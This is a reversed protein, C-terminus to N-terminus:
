KIPTPIEHLNRFDTVEWAQIDEPYCKPRHEEPYSFYASSEGCLDGQSTRSYPCPCQCRYIPAPKPTLLKRKAAQQMEYTWRSYNGLTLTGTNTDDGLEIPPQTPETPVLMKKFCVGKNFNSLTGQIIFKRIEDDSMTKGVYDAHVASCIGLSTLSIFLWYVSRM